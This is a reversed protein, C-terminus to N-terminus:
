APYAEDGNHLVTYQDGLQVPAGVLSAVYNPFTPDSAVVASEVRLTEPDQAIFLLAAVIGLILGAVSLATRHRTWTQQWREEV